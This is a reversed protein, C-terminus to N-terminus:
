DHKELTQKADLASPSSPQDKLFSFQEAKTLWSAAFAWL